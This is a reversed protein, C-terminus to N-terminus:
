SDARQNRRRIRLMRADRELKAEGPTGFVACGTVQRSKGDVRVTYGEWRAKSSVSLKGSIVPWPGSVDCGSETGVLIWVLQGLDFKLRERSM